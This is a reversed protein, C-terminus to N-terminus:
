QSEGRQPELRSSGDFAYAKNDQAKVNPAKLDATLCCPVTEPLSFILLQFACHGQKRM